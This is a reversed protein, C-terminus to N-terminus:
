GLSGAQQKLLAAFFLSDRSRPLKGAQVCALCWSTKLPQVLSPLALGGGIRARM